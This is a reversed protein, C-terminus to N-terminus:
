LSNLIGLLQNLLNAVQQLAGGSNLLNAVDCLLNGLLNGSGPVATINLVVPNPISITLGLVNLNIPGLTLNLVQCATAAQASAPATTDPSAAVPATFTAVVSQSGNILGTITGTAVVDSGSVAFGTITATGAFTGGSSTTGMVPVQISPKTADAAAAPVAAITGLSLVAALGVAVTRKLMSMKTKM